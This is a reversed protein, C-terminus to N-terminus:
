DAAPSMRDAIYPTRVEPQVLADAAVSARPPAEETPRVLGSPDFVVGNKIIRHTRSLNAVDQSPDADLLVIDALKGPAISGLQAPLRLARAGNTTAARLIDLPGLGAEQMLKMERFISSGHPSGIGGADTGVVVTAGSEWVRRLNEMAVTPKEPAAPRAMRRAIPPPWQDKPIHDLDHLTRLVQPDALRLDEPTEHWQNRLAAEFNLKVGLTPCYLARRERLLALFEADIPKDEVSHVLYDAGARLAIKAVELETAHVALPVKAAHAADATARVLVTQAELDDGELHIFWVKIYEPRRRVERAVLQRAQEATNVKIVPPDDVELQRRALTSVLPGAVSVRPAAAALRAAARMDFNWFPGGADVVGTVGGALWRKFTDPLHERTWQVDQAYPKLRTFDVIDPRTYLGGNQWFHVHSDILGPIAWKGRGDIRRTRRPLAISGDAGVAKIKAGEILITQNPALAPESLRGRPDVREPHVVTVGTIAIPPQASFGASAVALLAVVTMQTRM